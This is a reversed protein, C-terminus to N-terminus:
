KGVCDCDADCGVDDCVTNACGVDDCVADCDMGCPVFAGLGPVAVFITEIRNELETMELTEDFAANLSNLIMGM